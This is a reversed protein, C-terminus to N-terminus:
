AYLCIMWKLLFRNIIYLFFVLSYNQKFISSVLTLNKKSKSVYLCDKFELIYNNDLIFTVDGMAQVDIRVEFALILHM